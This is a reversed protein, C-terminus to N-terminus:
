THYAFISLDFGCGCIWDATTHVGNITFGSPRSKKVPCSDTHATALVSKARAERFQVQFNSPLVITDCRRGLVKRCLAPLRPGGPRQLSLAKALKQMSGTAVEGLAFSWPKSHGKFTKHNFTILDHQVFFYHFIYSYIGDSWGMDLHKGLSILRKKWVLDHHFYCKTKITNWENLIGTSDM